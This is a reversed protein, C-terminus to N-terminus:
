RGSNGPSTEETRSGGSDGVNAKLPIFHLSLMLCTSKFPSEPSPQDILRKCRASAHLVPHNIVCILHLPFICWPTMRQKMLLCGGTARSFVLPSRTTSERSYCVQRSRAETWMKGWGPSGDTVTKSLHPWVAPFSSTWTHRFCSRHRLPPPSLLCSRRRMMVGAYSSPFLEAKNGRRTSGFHRPLM